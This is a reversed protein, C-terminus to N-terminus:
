RDVQRELREIMADLARIEQRVQARQMGGLKPGSSLKREMAALQMETERLREEPSRRSDAIMVGLLEALAEPAVDRGSELDAILDDLRALDQRIAVRQMAGLKPGSSLKREMAEQRADARRALDDPRRDERGYEANPRLLAALQAEEIPAGGELRDIEAHIARLQAKLRSNVIAGKKPGGLMQDRLSDARSELRTIAAQNSGASVSVPVCLAMLAALVATLLRTEDRM